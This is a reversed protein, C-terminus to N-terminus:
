TEDLLKAAGKAGIGKMGPVNDSSDGVMSLYDVIQEPWVGMKDFVAQRDYKVDKMTDLIFVNDGVFQMLDKDGSAILIEEFDGKWQTAAAGMIDDAEYNDNSVWSLGIKEILTQILAFQPILDEPPPPRHGKYDEYIENRFTGGSTDKAVLVHTPRYTSFLKMFMSLVGHVANVPTGEPSHLTRIAYFARFIFNSVDIIILRKKM